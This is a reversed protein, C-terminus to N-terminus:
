AERGAKTKNNFLSQRKLKAKIDNCFHAVLDRAQEIADGESDHLGPLHYETEDVRLIARFRGSQLKTTPTLIM